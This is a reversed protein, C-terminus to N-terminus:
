HSTSHNAISPPPIWQSQFNQIARIARVTTLPDATRWGDAKSLGQVLANAHARMSKSFSLEEKGACAFLIVADQLHRVPNPSAVGWAAGKLSIASALDPVLITRGGPTVFSVTRRLASKAGPVGIVPRKLYRVTQGEPAMLDVIQSDRHFRHFPANPDIPRHPAFGLAELASAAKHYSIVSLEVVIDADITPRPNAVKALLAHAHVMLGGVLMWSAPPTTDSIEDLLEFPNM